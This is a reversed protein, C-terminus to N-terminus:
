LHAFTNAFTTSFNTKALIHLAILTGVLTKLVQFKLLTICMNTLNRLTDFNLRFITGTSRFITKFYYRKPLKNSTTFCITIDTKPHNRHFLHIFNTHRTRTRLLKSLTQVKCMTSRMSTAILTLRFM